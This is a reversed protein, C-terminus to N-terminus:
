VKLRLLVTLIAMILIRAAIDSLGGHGVDIAAIDSLVGVNQLRSVGRNSEFGSIRLCEFSNGDSVRSLYIITIQPIDPDIPSLNHNSSSQSTLDSLVNLLLDRLLVIEDIQITSGRGSKRSIKDAIEGSFGPTSFGQL